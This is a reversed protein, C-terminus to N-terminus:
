SRMRDHGGLAWRPMRETQPSRWSAGGARHGRSRRKGGCGRPTLAPLRICERCPPRVVCLWNLHTPHRWRQQDNEFGKTHQIGWTMGV